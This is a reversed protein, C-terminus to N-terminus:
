CGVGCQCKNDVCISCDCLNDTSVTTSTVIYPPNTISPVQNCKKCPAPSISHWPFPYECVGGAPCTNLTWVSPVYGPRDQKGSMQVELLAVKDQLEKILQLLEKKKM